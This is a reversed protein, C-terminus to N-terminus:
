GFLDVDDFLSLAGIRHPSEISLMRLKTVAGGRASFGGLKGGAALVRHCAVVIPFPNHGLAQGVAQAAGPEGLRAAIEGYSTTAGAPITRTVEYVRRHFAPVGDMDLPVGSLDSAEGRLLAVIAAIWGAVASPPAVETLAPFADTMRARIARDDREPLWVSLLGREAWAIGCRGIATDFLAVGRGAM